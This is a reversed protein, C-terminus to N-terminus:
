KIKIEGSILKQLIDDFEKKTADSFNKNDASMASIKVGGNELSMIYEREFNAGSYLLEIIKYVRDEVDPYVSAIVSKLNFTEDNKMSTAIVSIKGSSNEAAEVIGYGSRGAVHYVVDVKQAILEDTIKYGYSPNDFPRNDPIEDIAREIIEIKPNIYRVGKAFDFSMKQTFNNANIGVYAVKKTKTRKAAVVGMMFATNDFDFKITSINKEKVPPHNILLFKTNPYKKAYAKLQADYKDSNILILDYKNSFNSKSSSAEFVEELPLEFKEELDVDMTTTYVDLNQKADEMSKKIGLALSFNGPGSNVNFFLIDFSNSKTASVSSVCIILFLISIVKKM